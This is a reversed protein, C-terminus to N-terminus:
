KTSKTFVGIEKDFFIVFCVSMIFLCCSIYPSNWHMNINIDNSAYVAFSQPFINVAIRLILLSLPIHIIKSLLLIKLSFNPCSINNKIQMYTSLPCFSLAICLLFLNKGFCEIIIECSSTVESFISFVVSIAPNTTNLLVVKCVSYSFIVAGCINIIAYVNSSIAGSLGSKVIDNRKTLQPQPFSFIFSFIFATIFSSVIISIYIIIGAYINDLMTHGVASIVFAPSNNSVLISIVGLMNDHCNYENKIKNIYYGGSAFGSLIGLLCYSVIRRDKINLLRFLPVFPLGAIECIDLSSLFSTIVMFLFLSPIITNYCLVMSEKIYVSFATYNDFYLYILLIFALCLLINTKKQNQM